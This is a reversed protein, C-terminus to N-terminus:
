CPRPEEPPKLPLREGERKWTRAAPPMGHSPAAHSRDRGADERSDACPRRGQTAKDRSESEKRKYSCQDNSGSHPM